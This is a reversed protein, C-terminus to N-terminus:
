LPNIELVDINITGSASLAWVEAGFGVTTLDLIAGSGANIYFGNTTDLDSGGIYFYGSSSVMLGVRTLSSSAVKVATTTGVSYRTTKLVTM